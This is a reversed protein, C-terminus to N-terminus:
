KWSQRWGPPADLRYGEFLFGGAPELVEGAIEVVPKPDFSQFLCRFAANFRACFEPEYRKLVRPISKGHGSWNGHFRLQFDALAVYLRTGAAIMEDITRPERLDDVLDTIAYRRTNVEEETLNPPGADLVRRAFDKLSQSLKTPDPIEMGEVIMQPLSPVGSACDVRHIFYRLTDPDHVFAEVPFGDVRYSERYANPLRDFVVVLDIDSYATADGRMYSGAAFVAAASPYRQEQISKATEIVKNRVTDLQEKRVWRGIWFRRAVAEAHRSGSNTVQYVPSNM